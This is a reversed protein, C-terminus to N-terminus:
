VIHLYYARRAERLLDEFEQIDSEILVLTSERGAKEELVASRELELGAIQREMSRGALVVIKGTGEPDLKRHMERIEDQRARIENGIEGARRDLEHIKSALDSQLSFLNQVGAEFWERIDASCVSKLHQKASVSDPIARLCKYVRKWSNDRAAFLRTMYELLLGFSGSYDYGPYRRSVAEIVAAFDAATAAFATNERHDCGEEYIRTLKQLFQHYDQNSALNGDSSVQIAVKGLIERALELDASQTATALEQGIVKVCVDLTQGCGDDNLGCRCM